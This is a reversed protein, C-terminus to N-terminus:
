DGPTGDNVVPWNDSGWTMKDQMLLRGATTNSRQRAHYFMVFPAIPSNTVISQGGPGDFKLNSQLIPATKKIYSGAITSSRAVGVAYKDTAYNNGSYFIYYYGNYFLM